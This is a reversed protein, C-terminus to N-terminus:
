FQELLVVDHGARALARATAAGMVGAGVVAIEAREDV